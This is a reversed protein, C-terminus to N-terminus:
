RPLNLSSTQGTQLCTPGSHYVFSLKRILNSNGFLSMLGFLNKILENNKEPSLFNEEGQVNSYKYLITPVKGLRM